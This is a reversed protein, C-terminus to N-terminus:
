RARRAGSPNLSERDNALVDDLLRAVARAWKGRGRRGPPDGHEAARPLTRDEPLTAAVRLGLARGVVDSPVASGPSRRVVLRPEILELGRVTAAAAAVERVGTGTVVLTTRWTDLSHRAAALPTRGPDLLVVDHHRALSGLVARVSEASPGEDPEADPEADPGLVRGMSVMTVGDVQPLFRRVDNVEGHAGLLRPWRWGPTREAGLLLDIGGGIPDLDVLAAALGRRRAAVALGAALTSAGAGGCGGVVGVLPAGTGRDDSLVASLAAIGDPLVIVQGGLAVSWRALTDAAFGVLYVGARPKPGLDALAQASDDAVFVAMARPWAAAAEEASGVVRVAVGLAASAALVVDVVPESRTLLLVSDPERVGM